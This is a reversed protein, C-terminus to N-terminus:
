LSQIPIWVIKLVKSHSIVKLNPFETKHSRTVRLFQNKKLSIESEKSREFVVCHGELCIVFHEIGCLPLQYEEGQSLSSTYIMGRVVGKLLFLNLDIVESTVQAQTKLDGSFQYASLAELKKQKGDSHSLIM